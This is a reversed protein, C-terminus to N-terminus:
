KRQSYLSDTMVNEYCFVKIMGLFAHIQFARHYIGWFDIDEFNVSTVWLLTRARPKHHTVQVGRAMVVFCVQMYFALVAQDFDVSKFYISGTSINHVKNQHVYKLEGQKYLGNQLM